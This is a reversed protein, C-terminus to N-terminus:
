KNKSAKELIKKEKPTISHMGDKSIKELILNVEDTVDIPSRNSERVIEADQFKGKPKNKTTAGIGISALSTLWKKATANKMILLGLFVGGLHGASGGANNGKNLINFVEFCFYLIGMTRMKMPIVFLLYVVANPAVFYFAALIGFIGASAGVMPIYPALDGFFNTLLVLGTYFLAGAIGCLLYYFTFIRSGMWREIHQGFFFIGIMNFILHPMDAHLFQFTLVRWIQFSNFAQEVSFFGWFFLESIQNKEPTLLTDLFFIAINSILLWKTVPAGDLLGPPKGYSPGQPPRPPQYGPKM